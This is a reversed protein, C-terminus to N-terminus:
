IKPYYVAFCCIRANGPNFRSEIEGNICSKNTVEKAFIKKRDNRFIHVRGCEIATMRSNTLCEGDQTSVSAANYKGFYDVM